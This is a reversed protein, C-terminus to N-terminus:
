SHIKNDETTCYNIGTEVTVFILIDIFIREWLVGSSDKIVNGHCIGLRLSVSFLFM